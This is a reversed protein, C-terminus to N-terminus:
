KFSEIEFLPEGFEVPTGNPVLCKVIRGKCDSEIENMLKMAEVICLADGSQVTQGDTVFPDQGPGSARYFTGVFPSSVIHNKSVHTAPAAASEAPASARAVPAAPAAVASVFTGGTSLRLERDGEKIFIEALGHDKMFNSYAKVVELSFREM